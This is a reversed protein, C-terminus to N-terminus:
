LRRDGGDADAARCAEAGDHEHRPPFAFPERKGIGGDVHVLRQNPAFTQLTLRTVEVDVGLLDDADALDEVAEDGLVGALRQFAHLSVRIPVKEQRRLLRDLVAQDVADDRRRPQWNQRRRLLVARAFAFGALWSCAQSRRCRRLHSHVCWPSSRFGSGTLGGRGLGSPLRSPSWSWTPPCRTPRPSSAAPSSQPRRPWSTM